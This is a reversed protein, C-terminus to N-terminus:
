TQQFQRQKNEKHRYRLREFLHAPHTANFMGERLAGKQQHEEAHLEQM